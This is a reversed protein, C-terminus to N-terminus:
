FNQWEFALNRYNMEYQNMVEEAIGQHLWMRQYKRYLERNLHLPNGRKFGQDTEGFEDVYPTPRLCGRKSTTLFILQCDRIRLFVGSNGGCHYMHYSCAGVNEHNFMRQCCYSQSCIMEGCVLCMTTMPGNMGVIKMEPCRFKAARNILESFDDPLDILMRPAMPRIVNLQAGPVRVYSSWMEFLRSVHEGELLAFLGIPLGLYRCLSDFADLSPDKLSEPPPVLTLANYFIALTKMFELACGRVSKRLQEINPENEAGCALAFLFRIRDDLESNKQNSEGEDVEMADAWSKQESLKIREIATDIASSKHCAFAQFLHALLALQVCHHEEVSGNPIKPAGEDVRGLNHLFQRGKVWSWGSLMALQIAMSIMDVNLINMEVFASAKPMSAPPQTSASSSPPPSTSHRQTAPGPSAPATSSASSTTPNVVATRLPISTTSDFGNTRRLQLNRAIRRLEGTNHLFRAPYIESPVPRSTALPVVLPTLFRSALLRLAMPKATFSVVACLRVLCNICDVQRTNFAGFLPKKEVALTAVICRLVYGTAAYVGLMDVIDDSIMVDLRSQRLSLIFPLVADFNGLTTHLKQSSRNPFFSKITALTEHLFNTITETPGTPAPSSAVSSTGATSPASPEPQALATPHNNGGPLLLNLFSPFPSVSHPVSSTSNNDTSDALLQPEKARDKVYEALSRESHSRKRSHSKLERPSEGTNTSYLPVQCLEGMRMIWSGFEETPNKRNASFTEVGQLLTSVPLLPIASNCLGRCLPCLYENREHNLTRPTMTNQRSRSRERQILGDVYARFCHYHMTHSCTSVNPGWHLDAPAFYRYDDVRQPKEDDQNPLQQQALLRTCEVYSACVISPSRSGYHLVETEQCLTCTVRRMARLQVQSREAGLCVPFGSNEPLYASEPEDSEDLTASTSPGTVGSSSAGPLKGYVEGGDVTETEENTTTLSAKRPPEDSLLERHQNKFSEQLKRMREMAAQRKLVAIGSKSQKNAVKPAPQQEVPETPPSLTSSNPGQVRKVAEKYRESTLWLLDGFIQTDIRSELRQFLTGLGEAEANQVFRFEPPIQRQHAKAEDREDDRRQQENLAIGCLFLASHFLSETSWRSGKIFREFVVRILQLFLRSEALRTLPRYFPQLQPGMPPFMARVERSEKARDKRQCQDAQSIQAKSYHAFFANYESRFEPKLVFVGGTTAGPRRFDAIENVSDHLSGTRSYAPNLRPVYRELYSFAKPGTCLAHILERKLADNMSVQGVGPQYRETLLMIIMHFFEEALTVTIRSHDESTAMPITPTTSPDTGTRLFPQEEFGFTAWRILSFRDLCRVLFRDPDSLAAVAQLLLLDRDFMESRCISGSYNNMQNAFSFGNRRWLQCTYQAHLVLCRLPMEMLLTRFGHLSRREINPIPEWKNTIDLNQTLSPVTQDEECIYNTMIEPQATLLAAFFRWLPQHISVPQQSVDYEICSATHGNVTVDRRNEFESMKTTQYVIESLCRCLLNMHVHPDVLAWQILLYLSDHMHISITFATEWEAETLQHDTFQRKVEDMHQFDRLFRLFENAGKLYSQRLQSDWESARKPISTLLYSLDTMSNLSRELLVSQENQTFDLVYLTRQGRRRWNKLFNHEYSIIKEIANQERILSKAITPVTFVQVAMSIVSFKQDHDDDVYDRYIQEYYDVLLRGFNRKHEFHMLITAMLLQHYACRAAKWLKRDALVLRVCPSQHNCPPVISDTDFDVTPIQIPRSSNSDLMARCFSACEHLLVNGMITALPPFQRVQVSLWDLLRVALTQCAILARSMVRVELPGTRQTRRNTDRQTRRQVNDKVQDCKERNGYCVVTRGERDVTSALRMAQAEDCAISVVLARIVADYTHTEDNFLVTQFKDNSIHRLSELPMPFDESNCCLFEVIFKLAILTVNHVHNHLEKTITKDMMAKQEDNPAHLKCVHFEAFAEPDGCDCYGSGTSTRMKYKHKTHESNIFCDHCLVCTNDHQCERCSYTPEGFRFMRGCTQGHGVIAETSHIGTTEALRNISPLGNSDRCNQDRCFAVALPYFLSDNIKKEDFQTEWPDKERVAFCEVSKLLWHDYLLKAALEWDNNNTAKILQDIM